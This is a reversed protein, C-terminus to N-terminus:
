SKRFNTYHKSQISVVADLVGHHFSFNEPRFLVLQLMNRFDDPTQPLLPNSYSPDASEQSDLFEMTKTGNAGIRHAGTSACCCSMSLVASGFIQITTSGAHEQGPPSLLSISAPTEPHQSAYQASVLAGLSEGVLHFKKLGVTVFFQESFVPLLNISPHKQQAASAKPARVEHLLKGLAFTSYSFDDRFGSDGHGPLDLAIIRWSKPLIKIIPVWSLKNSTLGHVLVVTPSESSFNDPKRDLYNIEIGEITVSSTTAGPM